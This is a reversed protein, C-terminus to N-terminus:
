SIIYLQAFWTHVSPTRYIDADFALVGEVRQIFEDLENQRGGSYSSPYTIVLYVPLMAFEVVVLKQPLAKALADLFESHAHM